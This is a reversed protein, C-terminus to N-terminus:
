EDCSREPQPFKCTCWPWGCEHALGAECVADIGPTLTVIDRPDIHLDPELPLQVDTMREVARRGESMVQM